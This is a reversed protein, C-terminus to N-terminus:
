HFDDINRQIKVKKCKRRDNEFTNVLNTKQDLIYGIRVKKPHIIAMKLGLITM